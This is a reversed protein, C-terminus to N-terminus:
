NRTPEGLLQDNLAVGASASGTIAADLEWAAPDALYAQDSLYSYTPEVTVMPPRVQSSCGTAVFAAAVLMPAAIWKAHKM